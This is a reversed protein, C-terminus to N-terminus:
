AVHLEDLNFEREKGARIEFAREIGDDDARYIIAREYGSDQRARRMLFASASGAICAFERFCREGCVFRKGASFQLWDPQHGYTMLVMHEIAACFQEDSEAASTEVLIHSSIYHVGM